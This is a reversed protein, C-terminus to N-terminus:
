FMASPCSGISTKKKKLSLKNTFRHSLSFAVGCTSFGISTKSVVHGLYGSYHWACPRHETCACHGSHTHDGSTPAPCSGSPLVHQGTGGWGKREWTQCPGLPPSLTPSPVGSPTSSNLRSTSSVTPRTPM